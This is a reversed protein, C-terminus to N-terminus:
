CSFCCSYCVQNMAVTYIKEELRDKLEAEDDLYKREEDLRPDPLLNGTADLTSSSQRV